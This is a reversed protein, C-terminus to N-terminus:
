LASEQSWGMDGCNGSPPPAGAECSRPAPTEQHCGVRKLLTSALHSSSVLSAKYRLPVCSDCMKAVGVPAVGEATGERHGSM